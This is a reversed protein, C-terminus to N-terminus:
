LKGAVYFVSQPKIQLMKFDIIKLGAKNFYGKTKEVEKEVMENSKATRPQLALVFIGNENLLHKLRIIEGVPNKWFIHVNMGFIKDFKEDPRLNDITGKILSIKGSKISAANRKRAQKLMVGSIDIGTITGTTLLSSIIEVAVGPGFGIELISDDPKINMETILWNIRNINNKALIYGVLEGAIGRPNGFQNSIYKLM